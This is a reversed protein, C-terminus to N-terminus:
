EVARGPQNHGTSGVLAWWHGGAAQIRLLNSLGCAIRKKSVSTPQLVSCIIKGFRNWCIFECVAVWRAQRRWASQSGWGASGTLMTPLPGGSAPGCSPGWPGLLVLLCVLALLVMIGWFQRLGMLCTSNENPICQQKCLQDAPDKKRMMFPHTSHFVVM